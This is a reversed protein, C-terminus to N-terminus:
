PSGQGNWSQVGGCQEDADINLAYDIEAYKRLHALASSRNSAFDQRPEDVVESPLGIRTVYNRVIEQTGDRSGTDEIM